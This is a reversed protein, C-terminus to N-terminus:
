LIKFNKKHYKFFSKLVPIRGPFPDNKEQIIVYDDNSKINLITRTLFATSPMGIWTSNEISSFYFEIPLSSQLITCDINIKKIIKSFKKIDERPHPKFYIHKNIDINKLLYKIYDRFERETSRKYKLVPSTLIINGCIKQKVINDNSISNNLIKYEKVIDILKSNPNNHHHNNKFITIFREIKKNSGLSNLSLNVRFRFLLFNYIAKPIRRYLKPMSVTYLSGIGDDLLGIQKWSINYIHRLYNFIFHTDYFSYMYDIRIKKLKKIKKNNALKEVNFFNIKELCIHYIKFKKNFFNFYTSNKKGIWLIEVNKQNKYKLSFSCAQILHFDSEALILNFDQM